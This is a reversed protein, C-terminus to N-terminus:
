KGWWITPEGEYVLSFDDVYMTSGEGGTMYDGYKSASCVIIIHTPNKSFEKEKYKLPITFEAYGEGSTAAGSPLEGYAIIDPNNEYDIYEEEKSNNFTFTRTALAIFIACQDMTENKIIEVGEPKRDVRNIVKPTYKYYGHLAIPRGTFPKGFEMNASMGDLGLFSGTYLSAAAFAIVKYASKLEAAKGGATHVPSDVGTTPNLAGGIAGLGQTTGPNSTNWFCTTNGAEDATGPYWTGNSESWLDFNGNHLEPQSDTESVTSTTTIEQTNGIVEIRGSENDKAALRYEYTTSATLGTLIATYTNGQVTTVIDIWTTEEVKTQASSKIRYQFTINETNIGTGTTVNEAKLYAINDWAGSSITANNKPYQSVTFTYEYEQMTEDVTVTVDGTTGIEALTFNLIYHDNGKVNSLDYTASHPENNQNTLTYQVTLNTVPFYIAKTENNGTLDVSITIPDCAGTEQPKVTIDFAKFKTKINDSLKVSVKVNALKCVVKANAEKGSTISVTEEGYYYPAEVASQKGDFGHSSAQITYTGVPLEIPEDKWLEWDDTKKIVKGSKDIIKVAIQKGTYGEPLNAAKTQTENSENINLRLYGVDSKLVDETQCAFLCVAIFLFLFFYYIQKM